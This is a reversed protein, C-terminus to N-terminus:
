QRRGQNKQQSRLRRSRRKKLGSFLDDVSADGPQPTSEKSDTDDVVSAVKKSKKKKKLSPDFGLDSM